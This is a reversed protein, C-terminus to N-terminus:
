IVYDKLKAFYKSNLEDKIKTDDVIMLGSIKDIFDYKNDQGVNIMILISLRLYELLLKSLAEVSGFDVKIKAMLKDYSESHVAGHVFMSRLSYSLNVAKKILVADGGIFLSMTKATNMSLRFNLEADGVLYISELGMIAYAIRKVPETISLAESYRDYAIASSSWDANKIKNYFIDPLIKNLYNWFGELKQKNQTGISYKSVPYYAKGIQPLGVQGGFDAVTDRSISINTAFVDGLSFLKLITIGRWASWGLTNFDAESPKIKSRIEMITEPMSFVTQSSQYRGGAWWTRIDEESIKRITIKKNDCEWEISEADNLDVGKLEIKVLNSVPNDEVEDIFLNLKENIEKEDIKKNNVSKNAISYAFHRVFMHIQNDNFKTLLGNKQYNDKIFSLIETMITEVIKPSAFIKYVVQPETTIRVGNTRDIKIVQEEIAYTSMQGANVTGNIRDNIQNVIKYLTETEKTEIDTM